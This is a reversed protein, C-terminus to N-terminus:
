LRREFLLKRRKVSQRIPKTKESEGRIARGFTFVFKCLMYYKKNTWECDEPSWVSFAARLGYPSRLLVRFSYIPKTKGQYCACLVMLIEIIGQWQQILAIKGM